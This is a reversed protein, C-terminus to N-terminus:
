IDELCYQVCNDCMYHLTNDDNIDVDYPNETLGVTRNRMGCLYCCPDNFPDEDANAM